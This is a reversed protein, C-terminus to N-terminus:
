EWPVPGGWRNLFTTQSTPLRPGPAFARPSRPYGLPVVFHLVADAPIDLLAHVRDMVQPHLLTPLSGIGLARAALMLNQVAPLVAYADGGRAGLTLIIAPADKMEDALRMASRMNKDEAPIDEPRMFGGRDRRKAWWAEHYLEGFRRILDRDTLVLFRAMQANGRNPARVAAEIVLRIDEIAIPDPKFRRVSRQTFIADGLAIQNLRSYDIM